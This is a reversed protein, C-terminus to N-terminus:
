FLGIDNGLEGLEGLMGGGDRRRGRDEYDYDRRGEFDREVGHLLMEGGLVAAAGGLAGMAYKGGNGQLLGGIGGQQQGQQMMPNAAPTPVIGALSTHCSLCNSTGVPAMAMCVPCRLSMPQQGMMPNSQYPNAQPYQQSPAYDPYQIPQQTYPQSPYQPASQGYPQQSYQSPQQTYPNPAAGGTMTQGCGACFHVGARNQTGCNNCFAQSTASQAPAPATMGQGCNTCFASETPVEMQCSPCQRKAPQAINQASALPSGCHMCFSSGAQVTGGCHQCSTTANETQIAQVATGCEPCFKKGTVVHGCSTCTVMM